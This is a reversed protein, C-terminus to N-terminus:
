GNIKRFKGAPVRIEFRVGVGPEGTEVITIGTISLIERILFLGLGTNKGFGKEFVKEKEEAAVGGGNDEYLIVLEGQQYHSSIIIVSLNKGHRVSNEVLNYIVKVLMRDAYIEYEDHNWTMTVDKLLGQIKRLRLIPDLTQWVPAASGIDQYHATFEILAKIESSAQNIVEFQKKLRGEPLENAITESYYSTVMIRNLIDHRTISSLIRLKNNIEAIAKHARSIEDIDHIEILMCPQSRIFILTIAVEAIFEMGTRSKLNMEQHVSHGPSKEREMLGALSQATLRIDLSDIKKGTVDERGYEFVTEFGRNTEIVEYAPNIILIPDPTAEFISIFKEENEKLATEIEKRETIDVLLLLINPSNKYQIRSGKVLVTRKVNNKTYVETEYVSHIIGSFRKEMTAFAKKRHEEPLFGIVLMNVMEGPLYGLASETAPNAYLIRGDRDYVIVYDPLNEVLSRNFLESELLAQEAKRQETIDRLTIYHVVQNDIQVLLDDILCPFTGGDRHQLQIEYGHVPGVKQVRARIDEYTEPTAYIDPLSKAILEDHDYGTIAEITRNVEVIRGSSSVMGIGIPANDFLLRYKEESKKLEDELKKQYTKDNLIIIEGSVVGPKSQLYSHIVEFFWEGDSNKLCLEHTQLSPNQLFALLDTWGPAIEDIRKGISFPQSIHFLREAAPNLDVLRSQSDLIFMPTQLSDIISSRGIPILDLFGYRFIAVTYIIGTIGLLSPAPNFGKISSFGVEFIISGIVPFLLALLALWKQTRYFKNTENLGILLLISSLFLIGYTFVLYFKYWPANQFLLIPLSGSLDIAFDYRFLSHYGSTISLIATVVPIFLLLAIYVPKLWKQKGILLLVLWLEVVSMFPIFVNRINHLIIKLPLDLVSLEAAYNLAWFSSLIMIIIYPIALPYSRYRYGYGALFLTIIGSLVLSGIIVLGTMDFVL